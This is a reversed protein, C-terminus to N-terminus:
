KSFYGNLVHNFMAFVADDSPVALSLHPRECYSLGVEDHSFHWDTFFDTLQMELQDTELM